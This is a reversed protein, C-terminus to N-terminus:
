TVELITNLVEKIQFQYAKLEKTPTTERKVYHLRRCAHEKTLANIHINKKNLNECLVKNEM